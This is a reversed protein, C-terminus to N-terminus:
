GTPVLASLDEAADVSDQIISQAAQNIRRKCDREALVAAHRACLSVNNLREFIQLIKESKFLQRYSSISGGRHLQDAEFKARAFLRIKRRETKIEDKSM